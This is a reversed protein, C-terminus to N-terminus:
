HGKLEFADLEYRDPEDLLRLFELRTPRGSKASGPTSGEATTRTGELCGADSTLEYM